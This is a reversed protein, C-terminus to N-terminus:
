TPLRTKRFFESHSRYWTETCNRKQGILCHRRWSVRCCRWSVTPTQTTMSAVAFQFSLCLTNSTWKQSGAVLLLAANRRTLGSPPSSNTERLCKLSSTSCFVGNEGKVCHSNLLRECEAIHLREFLSCVVFWIPIHSRCPWLSFYAPFPVAPPSMHKHDHWLGPPSQAFHICSLVYLMPLRLQKAPPAWRGHGEGWCLIMLNFKGNGEDVLNRTYRGFM